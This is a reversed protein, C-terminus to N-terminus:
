VSPVLITIVTAIVSGDVQATGEVRITADSTLSERGVPQPEGNEDLVYITAGGYHVEIESDTLFLTLLEDDTNIDGITGEALVDAPETSVSAQLQPTLVFFDAGTQVLKLGGFDLILLQSAGETLEFTETIFLRGNATLHIDTLTEDPASALILRPDSISLRIQNYGGAPIEAASLIESVGLLETLEVDMEGEFVLVHGNTESDDKETDQETEEPPETLSEDEDDDADQPVLVVKTVMVRLSVIEDIEVDGKDTNPASEVLAKVPANAQQGDATLLTTVKTMGGTGDVPPCGVLACAAALVVAVAGLPGTAKAFRTMM